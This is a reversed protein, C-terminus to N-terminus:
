LIWFLPTKVELVRNPYSIIELGVVFNMCAKSQLNAAYVIDHTQETKTTPLKHIVEMIYLYETFNM